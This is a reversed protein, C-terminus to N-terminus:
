VTLAHVPGRVGQESSLTSSHQLSRVDERNPFRGALLIRKTELYNDAVETDGKQVAKMQQRLARISSRLSDEVTETADGQCRIAQMASVIVANMHRVVTTLVVCRRGPTESISELLGILYELTQMEEEMSSICKLLAQKRKKRLVFNRFIRM